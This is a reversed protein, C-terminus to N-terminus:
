DRLRAYTRYTYGNPPKVKNYCGPSLTMNAAATVSTWASCGSIDPPAVAALPDTQPAVGSIEHPTIQSGPYNARGVVYTNGGGLVNISASGTLTIAGSNNSNVFLDGGNINISASGTGTVAKESPNLAMIANSGPGGPNSGGSYTSSSRAIAEVCNSMQSIGVIPGFFTNVRSRIIVQVYGSLGAYTSNTGNCGIGVPENVTV